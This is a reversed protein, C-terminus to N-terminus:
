DRRGRLNAPKTLCDSRQVHAAYGASAPRTATAKRPRHWVMLRAAILDQVGDYMASFAARAAATINGSSDLTNYAVPGIFNRGNIRKGEYVADTIHRVNAMTGRPISTGSGNGVVPTTPPLSKVTVLEGTSPTIVLAEVPTQVTVGPLLHGRVGDYASRLLGPLENLADDDAYEFHYVNVGPGGEWGTLEVVM